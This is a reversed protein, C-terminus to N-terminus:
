VSSAGLSPKDQGAVGALAFVLSTATTILIRTRM